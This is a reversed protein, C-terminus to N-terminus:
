NSKHKIDLWAELSGQKATGLKLYKPGTKRKKAPCGCDGNVETPALDKTYVDRHM